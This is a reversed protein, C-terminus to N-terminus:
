KAKGAYPDAQCSAQARVIHQRTGETDTKTM